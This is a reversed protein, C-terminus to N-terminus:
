KYYIIKKVLFITIKVLFLYSLVHKKIMNKKEKEAKTEM